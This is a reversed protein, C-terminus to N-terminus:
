RNFIKSIINPKKDMNKLSLGLRRKEYNHNIIKAHISKDVIFNEYRNEWLKEPIETNHILGRIENNIIVYIGFPLDAQSIKCKVISGEKYGKALEIWPDESLQKISCSIMLKEVDYKIIKIKIKDNINYSDPIKPIVEWAIESIHVMGVFGDFEVFIGYDVIELIKAEKITGIPNQISYQNVINIFPEITNKNAYLKINSYPWEKKIGHITTTIKTGKELKSLLTKARNGNAIKNLQKIRLPLSIGDILVYINRETIKDIVGTVINGNKYNCVLQSLKDNQIIEENTNIYDEDIYFSFSYDDSISDTKESIKYLRAFITDDCKLDNYIKNKNENNNKTLIGTLKDGFSVQMHDKLVKLVKVQVIDGTNYTKMESLFPNQMTRKISLRVFKSIEKYYNSLAIVKVEDGIKPQLEVTDDNTWSIESKNIFGTCDEFNCWIGNDDYKTIKANSIYGKKILYPTKNYKNLEEVPNVISNALIISKLSTFKVFNVIASNTAEINAFPHLDSPTYPISCDIGKWKAFIFRKGYSEITVNIAESDKLFQKNNSYEKLNFNKRSKRFKEELYKRNNTKPSVELRHYFHNYNNIRVLIEKGDIDNFNYNSYDQVVWFLPMIADVGIDVLLYNNFFQAKIIGPILENGNDINKLMDIYKDNLLKEKESLIQYGYKCNWQFFGDIEKKSSTYDYLLEDLPTILFKSTKNADSIVYKDNFLNIIKSTFYYKSKIDELIQLLNEIKM